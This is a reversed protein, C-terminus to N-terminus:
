KNLNEEMRLSKDRILLDRKIEALVIPMWERDKAFFKLNTHIKVVENTVTIHDIVSRVFSQKGEQSEVHKKLMKAKRQVAKVEVLTLKRLESIENLRKEKLKKKGELALKLDRLEEILIANIGQDSAM